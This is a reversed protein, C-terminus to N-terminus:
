PNKPEFLPLVERLGSFRKEVDETQMAIRLRGGPLVVYFRDGSLTAELSFGSFEGSTIRPLAQGTLDLLDAEVKLMKQSDANELQANHLLQKYLLRDAHLGAFKRM